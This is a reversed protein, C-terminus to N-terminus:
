NAEQKQQNFATTLLTERQLAALYEDHIQQQMRVEEAAIETRVQKLQNSLETVKPYGTGFQTTVQALQTNLEAARERLKELMGSAGEKSPQSFAAPDGESALRYNSEKQIRDTQAATLERNLEDLKATVINQKEDVGLISHDKQYRVLKEESTQVKMQLDALEKSLWESTQTVSEYKTRYNEEIFTTVLSNAIESTLRPDSHTYSVQILRTSRVLQVNLGAHFAGLLGSAKVPDPEMSSIRVASDASPPLQGVGTFRADRDLHLAEIVKIALADSRLIAAQTELAADYDYDVPSNERDKFGLVNPNEPFIAVESAAQYMRTANLTAIVALAFVIAFTALIVWKRKRVVRWYRLMPNEQDSFYPYVSQSGKVLPSEIAALADMEGSINRRSQSTM